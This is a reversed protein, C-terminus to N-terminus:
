TSYNDYSSHDGKNKYLHIINADRFDQPAQDNVLFVQFLRTLLSLPKVVSKFVEAPIGDPVPAQKCSNSPQLQRQPMIHPM